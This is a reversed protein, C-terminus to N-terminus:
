PSGNTVGIVVIKGDLHGIAPAGKADDPSLREYFLPLAAKPPWAPCRLAETSAVTTKSKIADILFAVRNGEVRPFAL